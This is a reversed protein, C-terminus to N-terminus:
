NRQGRQRQKLAIASTAGKSSGASSMATLHAAIEMAGAVAAAEAMEMKQIGRVSTTTLRKDVAAAARGSPRPSKSGEDHKQRGLQVSVIHLLLLQLLLLQLLLRSEGLEVIAM